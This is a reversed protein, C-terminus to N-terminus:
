APAGILADLKDRLKGEVVSRMPRLAFPLHIKVVVESAAVTVVGHTGSAPGPPAVLHMEDGQWRWLVSLRHQLRSAFTEARRRAEALPLGHRRRLVISAV